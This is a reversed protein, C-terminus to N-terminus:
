KQFFAIIVNRAREWSDFGFQQVPNTIVKRVHRPVMTRVAVLTNAAVFTKLCQVARGVQGHVAIFFPGQIQARFTIFQFRSIGSEYKKKKKINNNKMSLTSNNVFNQGDNKTKTSRIDDDV